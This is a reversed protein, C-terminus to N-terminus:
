SRRFGVRKIRRQACRLYPWNSATLWSHVSPTRAVAKRRHAFPAADPRWHSTKSPGTSATHTSFMFVTSSSLLFSHRLLPSTECQTERATERVAERVTEGV